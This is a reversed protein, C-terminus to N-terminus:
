LLKDIRRFDEDEPMPCEDLLEQLVDKRAVQYGKLWGTQYTLRLKMGILSQEPYEKFSDKLAKKEQKNMTNYKFFVMSDLDECVMGFTLKNWKIHCINDVM